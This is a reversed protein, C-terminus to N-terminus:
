VMAMKQTLSIFFCYFTTNFSLLMGVIETDYVETDDKQRRDSKGVIKKSHHTKTTVILVSSTEKKSVM